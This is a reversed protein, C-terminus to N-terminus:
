RTVNGQPAAAAPTSEPYLGRLDDLHADVYYVTQWGHDKSPDPKATFVDTTETRQIGTTHGMNGLNGLNALV